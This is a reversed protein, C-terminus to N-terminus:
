ASRQQRLRLFFTMVLGVTSLAVLLTSVAAVGPDLQERVSSWMEVPLTHLLPQTLFLSVVLEDWSTVFALLAGAIVGPRIVPLTVQLFTRVPSAGLNAAALEISPDITEITATVTILVLPLALAAHAIVLGAMTGVLGVRSYAFFTGIGILVIPVIAPSLLIAQAVSKGPFIGRALGFATLTGLVTAVMSSLVAIVLSHWTAMQWADSSAVAEYWQTSFGKPPFSLIPSETFSMPVVVLTPAVLLFAAPIALTLQLARRRARTSM